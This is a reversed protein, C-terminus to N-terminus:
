TVCLVFIVLPCADFLVFNMLKRMGWVFVLAFPALMFMDSEVQLQLAMVAKSCWREDLVSMGEVAGSNANLVEFLEQAGIFLVQNRSRQLSTQALSPRVETLPWPNQIPPVVWKNSSPTSGHTTM